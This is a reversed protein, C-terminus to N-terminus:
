NQLPSGPCLGEEALRKYIRRMEDVLGALATPMIRADMEGGRAAVHKNVADQLIVFAEIIARKQEDSAAISAIDAVTQRREESMIQDIREAPTM